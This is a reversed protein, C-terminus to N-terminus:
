FALTKEYNQSLFKEMQLEKSFDQRTPRPFARAIPPIVGTKESKKVPFPLNEVPRARRLSVLKYSNRKRHKSQRRTM